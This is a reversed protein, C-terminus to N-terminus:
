WFCFAEASLWIKWGDWLLIQWYVGTSRKYCFVKESVGWFNLVGFGLDGDRFGSCWWRKIIGMWTGWRRKGKGNEKGKGL